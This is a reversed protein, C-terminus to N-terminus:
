GRVAEVFQFGGTIKGVAVIVHIWSTGWIWLTPTSPHKARFPLRSLLGLVLRPRVASSLSLGVHM